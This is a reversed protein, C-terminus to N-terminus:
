RTQRAYVIFDFDYEDQETKNGQERKVERWMKEDIPPFYVDGDIRANVRTVYLRDVIPLAQKYVSAGGVIFIEDTNEQAARKLADELSTALIAGRKPQYGAHGLVINTRGPLVRGISEHTRRGMLIPHGMTLSRFHSLDTPLHWPLAGTRGIVGNDAMAVIISIM